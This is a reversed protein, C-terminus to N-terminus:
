LVEMENEEIFVHKPEYDDVAIEYQGDGVETFGFTKYIDKVMKNKQTPIYEASVKEFGNIKATEIMKNVIFEEMGRKLVRCSM